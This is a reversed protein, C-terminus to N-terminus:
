IHHTQTATPPLAGVSSRTSSPNVEEPPHAPRGGRPGGSIASGRIGFDSPWISDAERKIQRGSSVLSLRLRCRAIRSIPRRCVLRCTTRATQRAHPKNSRGYRDSKDQPSLSDSSGRGRQGRHDDVRRELIRKTCDHTSLGSSAQSRLPSRTLAPQHASREGPRTKYPVTSHHTCIMGCIQTLQLLFSTTPSDGQSIHTGPHPGLQPPLSRACLPPLFCDLEGGGEGGEM